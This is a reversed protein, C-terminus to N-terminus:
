EMENVSMFRIEEMRRYKRFFYASYESRLRKKAKKRGRIKKPELGGLLNAKHEANFPCLAGTTMYIGEVEKIRGALLYGVQATRNANIDTITYTEEGLLDRLELISQSPDVHLVEFLSYYATEMGEIIAQEEQTLNQFNQSERFHDILNKGDWQIDYFCRDMLFPVEEESDFVLIGKPGILGLDKAAKMTAFKPVHKMMQNTLERGVERIERYKGLRNKEIISSEEEHEDAYRDEEGDEIEEERRSNLPIGILAITWFAKTILIAVRSVFPVKRTVLFSVSLSAIPFAWAIHLKNWDFVLFLVICIWGFFVTM